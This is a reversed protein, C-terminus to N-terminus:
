DCVRATCASLGRVLGYAGWHLLAVHTCSVCKKWPILFTTGVWKSRLLHILRYIIKLQKKAPKQQSLIVDRSLPGSSCNNTDSSVSGDLIHVRHCLDVLAALIQGTTQLCSGMIHKIWSDIVIVLSTIHPTLRNRSISIPRGVATQRASWMDASRILTEGELAQSGQGWTSKLCLRRRVPCPKTKTLSTRCPM